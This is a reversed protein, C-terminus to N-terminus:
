RMIANLIGSTAIIIIGLVTIPTPLENFIIYGFFAAWILITYELPATVSVGAHSIGAALLYSSLGGAIGMLVLISIDHGSPMAWTNSFLMISFLLLMVNSCGTTIIAPVMRSLHKTMVATLAYLVASSLAIGSYVSWSFRAGNMALCVGLFGTAVAVWRIPRVTERLFIAAFVTMFFPAALSIATVDLLSIHRVAFFFTVTCGIVLSGRLLQSLWDAQLSSAARFATRWAPILPIFGFFSRFFLVEGIPYSSTLMKATADM